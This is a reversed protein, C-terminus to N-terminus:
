AEAPRGSGVNEDTGVPIATDSAPLDLLLPSLYTGVGLGLDVVILVRGDQVTTKRGITISDKRTARVLCNAHPSQSLGGGIVQRRLNSSV